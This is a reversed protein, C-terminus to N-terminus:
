STSANSRETATWPALKRWLLNWALILATVSLSAGGILLSIVAIDWAPRYKYLWPLNLSHFGHYLWRNWRSNANYSQVIRATKPDIYYMSGAPDNFQVFIAPLPLQNNRDLYYSEYQTVTRVDTFVFPGSAREVAVMIRERDFEATPHGLVPIVRTDNPGLVAVYAPEGACSTLDLEKTLAGFSGEATALAAQPPKATFVELPPTQRLSASIRAGLRDGSGEQLNPFPDMSLMGSFAWTCAFLGFFLGLIAHWRKQRHYPFSAPAGAYRYSRSPSYMWLGVAIGLMAAITGLGSAWIVIRTWQQVHKRLPTFYLWHPIAGFYAAIRAGRTTYQVVEGTLTSVYVQQGDPWSYKRLPRLDAFEESVTWQDQETKDEERAASAPEGSWASAIRLTLEPPFEEQREGTDAYIIAIDGLGFRFRYAPRNDYTIVEAAAPVGDAGLKAYADAPSIRIQSADIAPARSLRDVPTVEPYQWYMMVIGSAFWMFFVMCLCVGMWRHVFILFRRLRASDAM